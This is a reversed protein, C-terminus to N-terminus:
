ELQKVILLDLSTLLDTKSTKVEMDINSLDSIIQKLRETGFKEAQFKLKSLRWAPYLSTTPDISVFYLDKLYRALMFFTLEIASTNTLNHLLKLSMDSNGPYFAELFTFLIKPLEFREMKFDKPMLKLFTQPLIGSHYVVLTGDFRDFNKIDQKTLLAFDRYIILRDTGFLSPTNPFEDYVIEWSRKKATEVFKMLREYSKESDDGHLVIIKM